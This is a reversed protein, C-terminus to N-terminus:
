MVVCCSEPKRRTPTYTELFRFQRDNIAGRRAKRIFQVADVADFGGEMLAVAVLMPARGLGAVCHVAICQQARGAAAGELDGAAGAAADGDGGRGSGGLPSRVATAPINPKPDAFRGFRAEVLDLWRNIVDEPPPDGDPFQCAHNAIGAQELVKPSYHPECARVVDSTGHRALEKVYQEVNSESPSDMILFKLHKWVVLSPQTFKNM